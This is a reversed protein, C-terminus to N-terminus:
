RENLPQRTQFLWQAPCRKPPFATLPFRCFQKARHHLEFVSAHLQLTVVFRHPQLGERKRQKVGLDCLDGLFLRFRAM